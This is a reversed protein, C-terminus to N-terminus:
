VDIRTDKYKVNSPVETTGKYLNILSPKEGIEQLKTILGKVVSTNGKSDTVKRDRSKIAWKTPNKYAYANLYKAFEAQEDNKWEGGDAPKVVLPLERPRLIEPDGVEIDGITEVNSVGSDSGGGNSRSDEPLLDRLKSVPATEDFAIGKETLIAIVEKKSLSNM